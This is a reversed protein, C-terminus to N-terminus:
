AFASATGPPAATTPSNTPLPWPLPPVETHWATTTTHPSGARHLSDTLSQPHGQLLHSSSRSPLASSPTTGPQSSTPAAAGSAHLLSGNVSAHTPQQHLSSRATLPGTSAAPTLHAISAAHSQHHHHHHQNLPEPSPTNSFLSGRSARANAAFQSLPRPTHSPPQTAAAAPPASLLQQDPPLQLPATLSAAPSAFPPQRAM